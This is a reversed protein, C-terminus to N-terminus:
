EFVNKIHQDFCALLNDDLVNWGNKIELERISGDRKWVDCFWCKNPCGRSTIVYGNRLYMGPMFQEGKQGSGPGGIKVPAISEWQSALYKAKKIDWTFTVSIHVEDAKDYFGPEGFRVNEDDPTAKTKTPFVRLIKVM